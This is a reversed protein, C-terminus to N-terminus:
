GRGEEEKMMQEQLIKLGRNIRSSVTGLPLRLAAAIDKDPMHESYRLLLPLRYREKLGGLYMWVPSQEVEPQLHISVDETATERKRRRLIAHCANITSRVLYSPLADMSRINNLNKWTAELADSVADQADADTRLMSLAVRYLTHKCQEVTQIFLDTRQNPSM